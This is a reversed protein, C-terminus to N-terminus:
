KLKLLLERLFYKKNKKVFKPNLWDNGTVMKRCDKTKCNCKLSYKPDSIGMGYDWMLEQGTKVPRAIVFNGVEDFGVNYSCSHNMNWPVSMYNFDEPAFYGEKTQLCYHGIKARTIPDNKKFESWPFFNEGLKDARAIVTGKKLPRTAFLGIQGALM